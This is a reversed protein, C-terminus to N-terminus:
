WRITFELVFSQALANAASSNLLWKNQVCLVVLVIRCSALVFHTLSWPMDSSQSRPKTKGRPTLQPHPERASMEVLNQVLALCLKRPDLKRSCHLVIIYSNLINLDHLSFFFDRTWKWTRWSFSCRNVM